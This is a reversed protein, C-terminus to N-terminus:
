AVGRRRRFHASMDGVRNGAGADHRQFGRMEGIDLLRVREVLRDNVEQGRPFDARCGAHRRTM